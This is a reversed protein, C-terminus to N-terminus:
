KVPYSRYAFHDLTKRHNDGIKPPFFQRKAQFGIAHDQFNSNKEKINKQRL